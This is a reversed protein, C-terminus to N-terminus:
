ASPAGDGGLGGGGDSGRQWVNYAAGGVGQAAGNQSPRETAIPASTKQKALASVIEYHRVGRLGIVGAIGIMLTILDWNRMIRKQTETSARSLMRAAPESILALEDDPITWLDRLSIEEPPNKGFDLLKQDPLSAALISFLLSLLAQIDRAGIVTEPKKAPPRSRPPTKKIEEDIVVM